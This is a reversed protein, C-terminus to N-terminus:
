KTLEHKPFNLFKAKEGIKNQAFNSIEHNQWNRTEHFSSIEDNRWIRTSRFVFNRTEPFSSIEGNPWNRYDTSDNARLRRTLHLWSSSWSKRVSMCPLAIMISYNKPFHRRPCHFMAYLSSALM